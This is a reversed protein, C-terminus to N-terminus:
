FERGLGLGTLNLYGPRHSEQGGTQAFSPTHRYSMELRDLSSTMELM